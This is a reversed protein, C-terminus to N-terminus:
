SKVVDFAYRPAVANFARSLKARLTGPQKPDYSICRQPGVDFPLKKGEQLLLICLKGIAQALGLEYYVNPNSGTLDAVLVESKRIDQWVQEIISGPRHEHKSVICNFGRSKGATVIASEVAASWSKRYPMAVFADRAAGPKRPEEKAIPFGFMFDNSPPNELQADVDQLFQRLQAPLKNGRLYPKADYEPTTDRECFFVEHIPRGFYDAIESGDYRAQWRLYHILNVVDQDLM